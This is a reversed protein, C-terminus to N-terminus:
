IEEWSFMWDKQPMFKEKQFFLYSGSQDLRYNSSTLRVRKPFIRYLGYNLPRKWAQTTELIYRASKAPAQQRYTVSFIIKAKADFKLSFRHVGLVYKLPIPKKDPRLTNAVLIFPEPHDSDVPLPLTFGQIMPFPFPNEYIYKGEVWVHDEHIFVDIQEETFRILPYVGALYLCLGGFLLLAM